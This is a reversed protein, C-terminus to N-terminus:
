ENIDVLGSGDFRLRFNSIVYQSDTINESFECWANNKYSLYNAIDYWNDYASGNYRQIILDGNEINKTSGSASPSLLQMQPM